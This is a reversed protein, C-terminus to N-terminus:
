ECEKFLVKKTKLQEIQAMTMCCSLLVTGKDMEDSFVRKSKIEKRPLLIEVSNADLLNKILSAKIGFNVNQAKDDDLQAVVVGMVNGKEDFIPGGSNGSQTTADIQINSFNVPASLASVIGKTVKITLGSFASLGAKL